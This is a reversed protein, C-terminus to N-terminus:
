VPLCLDVFVQTSRVETASGFGSALPLTVLSPVFFVPLWKALIAAGPSLANFISEGQPLALMTAFLAGCGALSSPFSISARKLIHRFAIDLVVLITASRIM